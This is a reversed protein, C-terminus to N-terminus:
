GPNDSLADSFPDSLPDLSLQRLLDLGLLGDLGPLEAPLEVVRISTFTRGQVDLEAVEYVGTTVVGSATRIRADEALRKAALARLAKRSLSTVNAGTDVLLTLQMGGPGLATSLMRGDEHQFQLGQEANDIRVRLEDLTIQAIDSTGTEQLVRRAEQWRRLQALALAWEYRYRDSAPVRQSIHRWFAEREALAGRNRLTTDTVNIIQDAQLRARQAVNADLPYDLVRFLTELAAEPMGGMQQLDALLFLAGNDNPQADLYARLVRRLAVADYKNVKGAVAQILAGGYPATLERQHAVLWRELAYWAGTNLLESFEPALLTEAVDAQADASHDVLLIQAQAAQRSSGAPSQAAAGASPSQVAHEQLGARYGLYYAGLLVAALFFVTFTLRFIM